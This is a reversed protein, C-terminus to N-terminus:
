SCLSLSFESNRM